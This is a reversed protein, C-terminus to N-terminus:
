VITIIKIVDFKNFGLKKRKYENLGNSIHSNWIGFSSFEQGLSQNRLRKRQFRQYEFSHM